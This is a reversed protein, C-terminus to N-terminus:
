KNVLVLHKVTVHVSIIAIACGAYEKRELLDTPLCIILDKSLTSDVCASKILHRLVNLSVETLYGQTTGRCHFYDQNPLPPPISEPSSSFIQRGHFIGTNM